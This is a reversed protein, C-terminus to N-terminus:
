RLGSTWIQGAAIEQPGPLTWVNSGPRYDHDLFSYRDRAHETEVRTKVDIHMLQVTGSSNAASFGEQTCNAVWRDIGEDSVRRCAIM